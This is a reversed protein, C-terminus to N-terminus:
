QAEMMQQLIPWAGAIAAAPNISIGVGGWNAATSITWGCDVSTDGAATQVGAWISGNLEALKDDVDGVLSATDDSTTVAQYLVDGTASAIAFSAISAVSTGSEVVPTDFPTTQNVGTFGLASITSVVSSASFTVAISHAGATPNKLYFVHINRSTNGQMDAVQTMAESTNWTVGSVTNGGAARWHVAVILLGNAGSEMTHTHSPTATTTYEEYSLTGISIAGWAPVALLLFALLLRKM